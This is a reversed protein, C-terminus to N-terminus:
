ADRSERKAYRSDATANRPMFVLTIDLYKDSKGDIRVPSFYTGAYGIRSWEAANGMDKFLVPSVYCEDHNDLWVNVAIALNIDSVKAFEKNRPISLDVQFEDRTICRKIDPYNWENHPEEVLTNGQLVFFGPESGLINKLSEGRVTMLRKGDSAALKEGDWHIRTLFERVKDSGCCKSLAKFTVLQEKSSIVLVRM